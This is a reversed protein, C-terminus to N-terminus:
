RMEGAREALADYIRAATRLSPNMRGNVIQSMHSTSIGVRRALGNQTLGSAEISARLWRPFDHLFDAGASM